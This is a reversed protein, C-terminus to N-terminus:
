AKNGNACGSAAGQAAQNGNNVKSNTNANHSNTNYNTHNTTTSNYDGGIDNMTCGNISFHKANEFFPM